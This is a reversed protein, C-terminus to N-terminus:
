GGLQSLYREGTDPLLVVITEDERHSERAIAIACSLAAGSSFGALIGEKEALIRQMAYADDDSVTVIEDFTEVKVISPVFGAGIGQIKHPGSPEGHLVASGMPEVAVLRVSPKREKLYRGTGM